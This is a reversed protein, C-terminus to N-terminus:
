ALIDLAAEQTELAAKVNVLQVEVDRQAIKSNVIAEPEIDGQAIRQTGANFQQTARNLGNLAPGIANM